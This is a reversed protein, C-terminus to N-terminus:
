AIFGHQGVRAQHHPTSVSSSPTIVPLIRTRDQALCIESISQCLIRRLKPLVASHKPPHSGEHHVEFPPAKSCAKGMHCQRDDRSLFFKDKDCVDIARAEERLAFCDAGCMSLLGQSTTYRQRCVACFGGTHYSVKTLFM